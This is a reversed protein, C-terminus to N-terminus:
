LDIVRIDKEVWDLIERHQDLLMSIMKLENGIEHEVYNDFISTQLREKQRM